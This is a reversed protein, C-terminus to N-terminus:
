HEVIFRWREYQRAKELSLDEEGLLWFLFWDLNREASEKQLSPVSIGHGTQPYVIYETPVGAHRAAKALGIMGIALSQAGAEVLIAAEVGELHLDASLEVYHEPVEYLSGGHVIDHVNRNLEGRMLQYMAIKNSLGEAFSAARFMNTRSLILSALWAGHSHGSIALREQDAIGQAILYDIGTVIDQIPEGDIEAPDAFQRGYSQTGRYNPIFVAMGHSAYAELPYPWISFYGIFENTMPRSPGGHVFTILPWPRESGMSADPVLLWGHARTGDASDWTIERAIPLDVNSLEDNLNTLQQCGEADRWVYIEPPRMLSQKVFVVTEFDGSFRVLSTDGVLDPCLEVPEVDGVPSVRDIRRVGEVTREIYFYDDGATIFGPQDSYTSMEIEHWIQQEDAISGSAPLDIAAWQPFHPDIWLDSLAVRRLFIRNGESLWEGGSFSSGPQGHQPPDAEAIVQFSNEGIRYIGVSTRLFSAFGTMESDVYTIALLDSEPSWHFDVVRGPTDIQQVSDGGLAALWLTSISQRADSRRSGPDVFDYVSLNNIDVLIGEEGNHMRHYLTDGQYSIEQTVYSVSRGDPSLRFSIVPHRARTIQEIEESDLDYTVIQTSGSNELLFALANRGRMWQFNRGSQIEVPLPRDTRSATRRIRVERVLNNDHLSQVDTVYVIMRGDPSLELERVRNVSFYSGITIQDNDFGSSSDTSHAPSSFFVLALVAVFPVPIRISRIHESVIHEEGEGFLALAHRCM